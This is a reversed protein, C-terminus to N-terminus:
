EYGLSSWEFLHILRLLQEGECHPLLHQLVLQSVERGFSGPELQTKVELHYNQLHSEQERAAVCM